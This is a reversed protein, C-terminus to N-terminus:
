DLETNLVGYISLKDSLIDHDVTDFANKLDFYLIGTFLGKDMKLVWDNNAKLM